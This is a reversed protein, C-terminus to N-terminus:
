IDFSALFKDFLEPYEREPIHTGDVRHEVTYEADETSGVAFLYKRNELSQLHSYNDFNIVPDKTDWLLHIPFSWDKLKETMRPLGAPAILGLYQLENINDLLSLCLAGGFSRGIIGYQFDPHNKMFDLMFELIAKKKNEFNDEVGEKFRSRGHGPTDIRLPSCYKKMTNLLPEWYITNQFEKHSGHIFFFLKNNGTKDFEYHITANSAEFFDSM